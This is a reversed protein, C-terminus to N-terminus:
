QSARAICRVAATSSAGIKKVGGESFDVAWYQDTTVLVRERVERVHSFTWYSAPPGDFQASFKAGSRSLDLLTVLEIRSPLRWNGTCLAQAEDWTKGSSATKQWVLGSVPDKLAGGGLDQYAAVVNVNPGGDEAYNPMRFKAWSVPQTGRPADFGSDRADTAVDGGVDAAFGGDACIGGGSCEGREYDDIGLLANCALLLTAGAGIVM